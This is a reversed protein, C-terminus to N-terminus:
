PLRKPRSAGDGVFVAALAAVCLLQTLDSNAEVFLQLSPVSAVVVAGVMLALPAFWSPIGRASGWIVVCAVALAALTLGGPLGALAVVALAALAPGVAWPAALDAYAARAPPPSDVARRRRPWVALAVVALAAVLGAVLGLVFTRQPTFTLHLVGHANAPLVFGQQWGDLQVAAV